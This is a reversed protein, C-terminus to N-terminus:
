PNEVHFGYIRDVRYTKEIGDVHCYAALYVRSGYRVINRPTVKRQVLGTTQGRYILIVTEQRRVVEQLREDSVLPPSPRVGAHLFSRPPALLFLDGVTKLRQNRRVMECVAGMVLRSDSLARHEERDAIGLHLAVTELRHSRLRLCARALALTDVVSHAPPPLEARDLASALFALDFRANHALLITEPAGLFELLAPLVSAITPKGRVMADTIGHIRTVVRPIPCEPDVLQELCGLQRGDLRFRLAGVEVIRCAAPSLGTTELDLAVFEVESLPRSNEDM